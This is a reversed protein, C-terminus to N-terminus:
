KVREPMVVCYERGWCFQLQITPLARFDVEALHQMGHVPLRYESKGQALHILAVESTQIAEILLNWGLMSILIRVPM